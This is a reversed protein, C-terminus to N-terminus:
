GSRRPPGSTPSARPIRSSCDCSPAGLAPIGGKSNIEEAAIMAGTKTQIGQNAAGGSLSLVVGVTVETLKEGSFAPATALVCSFLLLMSALRCINM